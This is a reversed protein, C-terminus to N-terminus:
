TKIAFFSTFNLCQFWLDAQKFGANNLRQIHTNISEPLLTNELATRKQSIELDSYGQSKKFGHHLNTFLQNKIPDDFLIKESLILVGGPILAQHIKKILTNRQQIEIFQLTFNLVVISANKLTVDQIDKCQIEFKDSPYLQELNNKCRSAMADSNDVGIVFSCSNNLNEIIASTSAGLSCGLDYCNTKPKAHTQTFLGIMSIINDYGPVSRKIMDSFVNAVTEDFQFKKINQQYTIFLEDSSNKDSPM